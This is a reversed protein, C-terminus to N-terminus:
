AEQTTRLRASQLQAAISLAIAEPGEGGLPLGIPSHLRPLLAEQAAAPLVKFLDQRRRVPGLLGIFGIPVYALEALAERDLEFNHHMVLAISHRQAIAPTMAASPATAIVADALAGLASWRPRQEVLTTMFGLTRLLPLLTPSEPGAGFVLVAPPAAISLTWKQGDAPSERRPAEGVSVLWEQSQQAVTARVRGTLAFSVALAGEGQAWAEVLNEWGPCAALPLVALRLRGRCGIASGSFLDEDQRTDLDMWELRLNAAAVRAAREIEPEICGGSLWGVQGRRAGFLAMAGAQVYTSGETEVVFVLTPSEGARLALAASELVGRVGGSLPRDGSSTRRRTDVVFPATAIGSSANSAHM